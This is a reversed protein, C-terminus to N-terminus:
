SPVVYLHDGTGWLEDPIPQNHPLARGFTATRGLMFGLRSRPPVWVGYQEAIFLELLRPTHGEPAVDTERVPIFLTREGMRWRVTLQRARLDTQVARDRRLWAPIRWVPSRSRARNRPAQLRPDDAHRPLTLAPQVFYRCKLPWGTARPPIEQSSIVENGGLRFVRISSIDMNLYAAIRARVAIWTQGAEFDMHYTEHGMRYAEVQIVRPDFQSPESNDAEPHEWADRNMEEIEEAECIEEIVDVAPEDVQPELAPGEGAGLPMSVVAWIHWAREGDYRPSCTVKLTSSTPDITPRSLSQMTSHTGSRDGVVRDIYPGIWSPRRTAMRRSGVWRAAYIKKHIYKFNVQPVPCGWARAGKEVLITTVVHALLVLALTCLLQQPHAVAWM